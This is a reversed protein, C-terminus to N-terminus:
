LQTQAAARQKADACQVAQIFQTIAQQSKLGASTEVGSSVDVAYPSVSAIARGVSKSDLGGALVLPRAERYSRIDDLLGWDFAHGSGGYGSSDTDFLWASADPYACALALVDAATAALSGGTRFARMYRHGYQRCEDPSEDGHFQLVDPQVDRIVAEVDAAPANVFLAAVTVFAPVAQRLEQAQQITVARRSGPYFVFGLADAGAQVAAVVDQRRTLGCIKIRTRNPRVSMNHSQMM